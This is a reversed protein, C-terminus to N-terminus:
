CPEITGPRPKAINSTISRSARAAPQPSGRRSRSARRQAAAEEGGEGKKKIQSALKGGPGLLQSSLKRGPSLIQGSLVSLQESRSEAMQQGSRGRPPSRAGEM